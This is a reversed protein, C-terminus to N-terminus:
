LTLQNKHNNLVSAIGRAQRPESDTFHNGPNLEFVSNLGSAAYHEALNRSIGETKKLFRNSSNSEKDGISIYVSPHGPIERGLAYTEFDPYWVSGSASVIGQFYDAHYMAYLAFLGAMSYGALVRVPATDTFGGMDKLTQECLPILRDTMWRLYADAEGRFNDQSSIIKGAPWPSLDSDWNIDSIMVLHFPPCGMQRCAELLQVGRDGYSNCYVVSCVPLESPFVVISRGDIIKKEMEIITERSMLVLALIYM